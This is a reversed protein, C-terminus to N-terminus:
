ELVELVIFQTIQQARFNDDSVLVLSRNGNPLRKGWTMGETNDLRPLGLTSFDAVLRKKVPAVATGNLAAIGLTDEGTRVDIEYLRLSNGVGQSYARELVLLRYPAIALIEPIGNDAFGTAPIPASPIPDAVYAIQRLPKGTALDLKTIRTLGSPADVTSPEGDEFLPSELSVWISQGDPSLTMGEFTLNDRPGRKVEPAQMKFNSMLPLERLHTGDL